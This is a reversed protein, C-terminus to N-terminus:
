ATERGKRMQLRARALASEVAKGSMGLKRGVEDHTYGYYANLYFASRARQDTITSLAHRIEDWRVASEEVNPVTQAASEQEFGDLERDVDSEWPEVYSRLEQRRWTKYVNSFQLLCQGVFFTRLSAGKAPDWKGPLLVKERFATLAQVVTEDALAEADEILVGPRPEAELAGFGKRKVESAIQGRYIWGRIVAWGYRAIENAFADYNHGVFGDLRLAAALERDGALRDVREMAKDRDADALWGLSKTWARHDSSEDVFFEEDQDDVRM